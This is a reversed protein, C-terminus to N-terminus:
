DKERNKIQNRLRNHFWVIAKVGMNRIEKISFGGYWKLDFERSLLDQLPTM